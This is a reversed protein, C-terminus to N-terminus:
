KYQPHLNYGGKHACAHNKTDWLLPIGWILPTYNLTEKEVYDTILMGM